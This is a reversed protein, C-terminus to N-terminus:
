VHFFTNSLTIGENARRWAYLPEHLTDVLWKCKQFNTESVKRKFCDIIKQLKGASAASVMLLIEM